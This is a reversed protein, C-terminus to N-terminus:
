CIGKCVEVIKEVNSFVQATDVGRVTLTNLIIKVRADMLLKIILPFSYFLMQIDVGNDNFKLILKLCRRTFYSVGYGKSSVANGIKDVDDKELLTTVRHTLKKL